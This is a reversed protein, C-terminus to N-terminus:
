IRRTTNSVTIVRGVMLKSCLPSPLGEFQILDHKFMSRQVDSRAVGTLKRSM